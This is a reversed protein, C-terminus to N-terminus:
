YWRLSSASPKPISCLLFSLFYSALLCLSSWLSRSLTFSSALLCLSSWISRFLTSLPSPDGSLIQDADDLDSLNVLLSIFEEFWDPLEDSCELLV